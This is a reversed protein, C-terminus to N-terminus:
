TDGKMNMEKGMAVDTHDLRCRYPLFPSGRIRVTRPRSPGSFGGPYEFRSYSFTPPPVKVVCVCVCLCVSVCVCPLYLHIELRSLKFVIYVTCSKYHGAVRPLRDFMVDDEYESGSSDLCSPFTGM